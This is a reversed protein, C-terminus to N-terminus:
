NIYNNQQALNYPAQEKMLIYRGLVLVDIDTKLFCLIADKPSEVIPEGKVNFSTNLVVSINTIKGFEVLLNYIESSQEKTITQLRATNDVHVVAPIKHRCDSLVEKVILMYPNNIKKGFWKETEECLFIPAFPRFEERFKVRKNLVEKMNKNCPNAIISRHGLARPGFESRGQFWGIILNQSLLEATDKAVNNSIRYTGKFYKKIAERIEVENYERGLYTNFM